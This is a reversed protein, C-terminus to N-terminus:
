KLVEFVISDSTGKTRVFKIKTGNAEAATKLRNKITQRGVKAEAVSVAGGEGPKLGSVFEAYEPYSSTVRYRELEARTLKRFM